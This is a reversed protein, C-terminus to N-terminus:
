RQTPPAATWWNAPLVGPGGGPGKRYGGQGDASGGDNLCANDRRPGREKAQLVDTLMQANESTTDGAAIDEISAIPLGLDKEAHLTYTSVKGGRLESIVTEGLTSLEDLGHTGHVM